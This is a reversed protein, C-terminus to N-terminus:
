IVLHPMPAPDLPASRTAGTIHPTVSALDMAHRHQEFPRGSSAKLVVEVLRLQHRLDRQRRRMETITLALPAATEGIQRTVEAKLEDLLQTHDHRWARRLYTFTGSRHLLSALPRFM